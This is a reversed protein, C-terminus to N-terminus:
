AWGSQRQRMRQAARWKAEAGQGPVLIRPIAGRRLHLRERGILATVMLPGALSQMAGLRLAGRTASRDRAPEGHARQRPCLRDRALVLVLGGRSEEVAAAVAAVVPAAAPATDARSQEM